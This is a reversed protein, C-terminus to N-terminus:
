QADYWTLFGAFRGKLMGTAEGEAADFVDAGGDTRNEIAEVIQWNDITVQEPSGTAIFRGYIELQGQLSPAQRYAAVANLFDTTETFQQQAAYQCFENWGKYTQWMEEWSAPRNLARQAGALATAPDEGTAWVEQYAGNELRHNVQTLVQTADDFDLRLFGQGNWGAAIDAVEGSVTAFDFDSPLWYQQVRDDFEEFRVTKSGMRRDEVRAGSPDVDSHAFM